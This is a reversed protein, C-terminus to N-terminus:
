ELERCLGADAEVSGAMEIDQKALLKREEDLQEACSPKFVMPLGYMVPAAWSLLKRDCSSRSSQIVAPLDTGNQLGDLFAEEFYCADDDSV